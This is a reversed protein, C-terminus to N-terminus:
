MSYIRLGPLSVVHLLHSVGTIRPDSSCSELGNAAMFKDAKTKAAAAAASSMAILAAAAAAMFPLLNFFNAMTHRQTIHRPQTIKRSQVVPLIRPASLGREQNKVNDKGAERRLERGRGRGAGATPGLWLRRTKYAVQM